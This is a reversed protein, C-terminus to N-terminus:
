KKGRKRRKRPRTKVRKRKKKGQSIFPSNHKYPLYTCQSVIIILYCIKLNNATDITIDIDLCKELTDM